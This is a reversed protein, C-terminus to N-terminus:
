HRYNVPVIEIESGGDQDPTPAGDWTIYGIGKNPCNPVMTRGQIKGNSQCTEILQRLLTAIEGCDWAADYVQPNRDTFYINAEASGAQVFTNYNPNTNGSPRSHECKQGTKGNLYDVLAYADSVTAM